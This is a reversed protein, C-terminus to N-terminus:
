IWTARADEGRHISKAQAVDDNLQAVLAEVGDFRVEGRLRQVWGVRLTEGYIDRDFDFLFAEVSRGARFTPRVGVNAVGYVRSTESDLVRCVVAYVGDAPVIGSIQLNATPFGITRGRQDGRVVVGETEHFRGLLASAEVVDGSEVCERVRTSSVVSGEHLVPAVEEVEFDHERGLRRLADTDGARDRGFRFDRGVIVHAAAHADVLVTRVFADPAQLAFAEDFTRVDVRDLGYARLLEARRTPETLLAPARDPALFATPHPDFFVGVSPMDHACARRVLEQHGRHVGDFNGITVVSRESM